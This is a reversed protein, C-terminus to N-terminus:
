ADRWSRIAQALVENESVEAVVVSGFRELLERGAAVPDHQEPSRRNRGVADFDALGVCAVERVGEGAAFRDAAGRAVLEGRLAGHEAHRHERKMPPVVRLLREVRLEDLGFNGM